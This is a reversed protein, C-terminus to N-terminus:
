KDKAVRVGIYKIRFFKLIERVKEAEAESPLEITAAFGPNQGVALSQRQMQEIVKPPVWMGDSRLICLVSTKSDILDITGDARLVFGDFKVIDKAGANPNTYLLAPVTWKGTVPDKFAGPTRAQFQQGAAQAPTAPTGPNEEVFILDRPQLSRGTQANMFDTNEARAGVRALLASDAASGLALVLDKAWQAAGAADAIVYAAAGIPSEAMAELRAQEPTPPPGLITLFFKATLADREAKEAPTLVNAPDKMAGTILNKAQDVWSDPDYKSNRLYYNRAAAREYDGGTLPGPPLSAPDIPAPVDSNPGSIESDNAPVPTGSDDRRLPRVPAQQEQWQHDSPEQSREISGASEGTQHFDPNDSRESLATATPAADTPLEKVKDSMMVLPGSTGAGSRRVITPEGTDINNSLPTLLESATDSAGTGGEGKPAFRGGQSDDAGAPWRPHKEPDWEEDAKALPGTGPELLRALPTVPGAVTLADGDPLPPLGLTARAENRTAIGAAVLSTAIQAQKQPDQETTDRWVLELDPWGMARALVQDVVRKLWRMLPAMGERLAQQDQNEATARNMQRVFPAPSISFAFAVIRALWEDFDDKLIAPKTEVYRVNGHIFRLHRREATNGSLLGDWYAQYEKLQETTWDEPVGLFADPMSGETYYELKHLQRRLAINITLLCQEVPSLGYVRWTRPNRPLYLLADATYDVAPLGKLIQQYAPLPPAPTRGWDDLVRKITGGDLPELAILSGDRARRPYLTAADLVLMDEVLM